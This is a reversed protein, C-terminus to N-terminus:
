KGEELGEEPSMVGGDVVDDSEPKDHHKAKLKGGQSCIARARAILSHSGIWQRQPPKHAFVEVLGIPQLRKM